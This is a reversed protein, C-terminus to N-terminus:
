PDGAAPRGLRAPQPDRPDGGSYGGTNRSGLGYFAVWERTFDVDDPADTGWTSKGAQRRQHHNFRGGQNLVDFDVAAVVPTLELTNHDAKGIGEVDTEFPIETTTTATSPDCAAVLAMSFALLLNRVTM